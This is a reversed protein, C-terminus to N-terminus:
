DEVFDPTTTITENNVGTKSGLDLVAEIIEDNGSILVLNTLVVSIDSNTYYTHVRFETAIVEESVNPNLYNPIGDTTDNIPNLDGNLDEDRTLVGDGDDDPDLYDPIDDQEPNSNLPEDTIGNLFDEGLEVSTPVNDGDDDFDYHNLISDGDTDLESIEEFIEDQDDFTVTTTVTAEGSAGIYETNVSPSTPPVNNCFYNADVANNFKRYYVINGEGNLTYTRIDHDTILPDSTNLSLSISEFTESTNKFFVYGGVDGCYELSEDNFDFTTVIVDGDNCSNLLFSITLLLFIKKM